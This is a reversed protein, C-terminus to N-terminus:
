KTENNKPVRIFSTRGYENTTQVYEYAPEDSTQEKEYDRIVKEIKEISVPYTLNKQIESSSYGQKYLHKVADVYAAGATMSALAKNFYQNEM